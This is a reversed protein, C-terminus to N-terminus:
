PSVTPLAKAHIVGARTEFAGVMRRVAENFVTSAVAQLMRSRFEFDIFFDVETALGDNTPNFQWHNNLYRFPGDIYEVDIRDPARLTVKSTFKERFVKFGVMLDGWIVPGEVKSVRCAVCWPLFEPYREIDAVLDFMQEPTYPLIKREAHTPM